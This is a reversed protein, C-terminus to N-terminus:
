EDVTLLKVGEVIPSHLRSLGGRNHKAKTTSFNYRNTDRRHHRLPPPLIKTKRLTPQIVSIKRGIPNRRPRLTVIRIRGRKYQLHRTHRVHLNNNPIPYNRTLANRTGMVSRTTRAVNNANPVRNVHRTRQRRRRSLKSPNTRHRHNLSIPRFLRTNKTVRHTSRRVITNKVRVDRRDKRRFPLNTRQRRTVRKIRQVNNGLTTIWTRFDNPLSHIRLLLSTPRNVHRRRVPFLGGNRNFTYHERLVYLLRREHSLRQKLSYLFLTKTGKGNGYPVHHGTRNMNFHRFYRLPHPHLRTPRTKRLIKNRQLLSTPRVRKTTMQLRMNPLRTHVTKRRNERTPDRLTARKHRNLTPTGRVRTLTRLVNIPFTPKRYTGRQPLTRPRPPRRPGSMHYRDNINIARRRTNPLARKRILRIIPVKYIITNSGNNYLKIPLLPITTGYVLVRM